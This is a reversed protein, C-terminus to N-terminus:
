FNNDEPLDITLTNHKFARRAVCRKPRLTGGRCMVQLLRYVILTAVASFSGSIECVITGLANKMWSLRRAGEILAVSCCSAMIERSIVICNGVCCSADAPRCSMTTANNASSLACPPTRLVRCVGLPMRDDDLVPMSGDPGFVSERRPMHNLNPFM